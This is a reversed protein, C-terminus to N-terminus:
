LVCFTEFNAELFILDHSSFKLILILVVSQFTLIALDEVSLLLVGKQTESERDIVYVISIM